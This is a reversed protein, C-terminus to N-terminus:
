QQEYLFVGTEEGSNVGLCEESDLDVADEEM